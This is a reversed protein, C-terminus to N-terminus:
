KIMLHLVSKSTSSLWIDLFNNCSSYFINLSDCLIAEYIQVIVHVITATENLVAPHVDTCLGDNYLTSSETNIIIESINHFDKSLWINVASLGNNNKCRQM